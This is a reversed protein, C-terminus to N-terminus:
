PLTVSAYYSFSYVVPIAIVASEVRSSKFRNDTAGTRRRAKNAVNGSPASRAAGEPPPNAGM